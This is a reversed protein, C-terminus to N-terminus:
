VEDNLEIGETAAYDRLRRTRGARFEQEAHDALGDLPNIAKAVRLVRLEVDSEVFLVDGPHINLAARIESPIAVRGKSDVTVAAM